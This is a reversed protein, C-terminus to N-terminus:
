GLLAVLTILPYLLQFFLQPVWLSTQRFTPCNGTMNNILQIMKDLCYAISGSQYPIFIADMGAYALVLLDSSINTVISAPQDLFLKVLLAATSQSSFVKTMNWNVAGCGDSLSWSLFSESADEYCLCHVTQSLAVDVMKSSANSTPEMSPCVFDAFTSASYLMVPVSLFKPMIKEMPLLIHHQETDSDADVVVATLIPIELTINATDIPIKTVNTTTALSSTYSDPRRIKDYHALLSVVQIYQGTITGFRWTLSSGNILMYALHHVVSFHYGLLEQAWRSVMAVDGDYELIESVPKCDCLYYFRAGGYINDIRPSLGAGVLLKM